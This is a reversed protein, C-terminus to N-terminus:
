LEKEKDNRLYDIICNICQKVPVTDNGVTRFFSHLQHKAIHNNMVNVAEIVDRRIRSSKINHNDGVIKYIDELKYFSRPMDYITKIVEILVEVNKSNMLFGFTSLLDRIKKDFIVEKLNKLNQHSYLVVSKEYLSSITSLYQKKDEIVLLNCECSSIIKDITKEDIQNPNSIFINPKELIEERIINDNLIKEETLIECYMDNNLFANM